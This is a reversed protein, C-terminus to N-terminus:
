HASELVTIKAIQKAFYSWLAFITWSKYKKEQKVREPYERCEYFETFIKFMNLAAAMWEQGSLPLFFVFICTDCYECKFNLM